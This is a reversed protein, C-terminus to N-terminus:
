MERCAIFSVDPEDATNWPVVPYQKILQLACIENLYTTDNHTSRGFSTLVLGLFATSYVLTSLRGGMTKCIQKVATSLHVQPNLADKTTYYHLTRVIPELCTSTGSDVNNARLLRSSIASLRV